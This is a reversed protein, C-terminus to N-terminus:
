AVLPPFRKAGCELSATLCNNNCLPIKEPSTSLAGVSHDLSKAGHSSTPLLHLWLQSITGERRCNGGLWCVRMGREVMRKREKMALSGGGELMEGVGVAVANAGLLSEVGGGLGAGVETLTRPLWNVLFYGLDSFM